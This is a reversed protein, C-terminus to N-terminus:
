DELSTIGERIAYKTLEAVSSLDLKKMVSRRHSEVTKVSLHIREAMQVTSNGETLLQLVERERSTIQAIVVRM